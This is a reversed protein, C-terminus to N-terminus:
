CAKKEMCFSVHGFKGMVNFLDLCGLTMVSCVQHSGLGWHQMGFKLTTPWETESFFLKSPKKGYITMPATKTLHGPGNSCVKMGGHWLPKIHFKAEIQGAMKIKINSYCQVSTLPHGQGITGM